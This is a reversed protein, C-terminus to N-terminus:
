SKQLDSSFNEINQHQTQTQDDSTFNNASIQTNAPKPSLAEQQDDKSQEHKISYSQLKHIRASSTSPTKIHMRIDDALNSTIYTFIQDPDMQTKLLKSRTRIGNKVMEHTSPPLRALYGELCLYRFLIKKDENEEYDDLTNKTLAYVELLFDQLPQHGNWVAKPHLLKTKSKEINIVNDWSLITKYIHSLDVDSISQRLRTQLWTRRTQEAQDFKKLLLKILLKKSKKQHVLDNIEQLILFADEKNDKKFDPIEHIQVLETKSWQEELGFTPPQIDKYSSTQIKNTFEDQVELFKNATSETIAQKIYNPTFTKTKQQLAKLAPDTSKGKSSQHSIAALTLLIGELQSDPHLLKLDHEPLPDQVETVGVEAQNSPDMAIGDAVFQM